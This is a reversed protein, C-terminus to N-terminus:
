SQKALAGETACLKKIVIPWAIIAFLVMICHAIFNGWHGGLGAVVTAPAFLEKWALMLAFGICALIPLRYSGKPVEFHIFHREVFSGILFGMFGGCAKFCDNMMKQPDVLLKGQADYDMPYPKVTIYILVGIIVAFGAFTLIDKAKEKSELAKQAIGVLVILVVGETM